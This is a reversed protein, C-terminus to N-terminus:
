EEDATDATDAAAGPSHATGPHALIRVDTGIRRVDDLVLRLAADISTIGLGPEGAGGLLTPGAGLLAPALYAVIADVYGGALFAAALTPGGELLVTRIGRAYLGALAPGIEEGLVLTPAADDLVRAGAPIRGRRDLVVRLPQRPLPQGAADRVTLQPDDVLVTQSGVLVADRRARIRHVDARAESGTIWRSSGDAAAVRGDLTAASKWTVHPRRLAVATLWRGLGGARVASTVAAGAVEPGAVAVGAAALAAAGGRAEATIDAAAFGLRAIGAALIADVCPPTRGQHACPELSSLITGGAASGGAERLALVEAHPGGPPQTAGSGVIRGSRDLVVAGVPPNPSTSGAVDDGLAIARLLATREPDGFWRDSM